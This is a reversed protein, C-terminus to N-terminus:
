ELVTHSSIVTSDLMSGCRVLALSSVYYGVVIEVLFFGGTIVLMCYIKVERSIKM